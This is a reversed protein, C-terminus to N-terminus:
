YNRKGKMTIIGSAIIRAIEEAERKLKDARNKFEEVSVAVIILWYITENASKLSIEFFKIYDRKSSSSRAEFVNAGMSTGSDLLQDAIVWYDRNKRLDSCIKIIDLSFQILRQNFEEKFKSNDNQM